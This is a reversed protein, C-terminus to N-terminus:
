PQTNTISGTSLSNTRPLDLVKLQALRELDPQAGLGQLIAAAQSAVAIAKEPQKQHKYLEAFTMLTRAYELQNGAVQLTELSEMLLQAAREWEIYKMALKAALRLARGRESSPALAKTQNSKLSQFAAKLIDEAKALDGIELYAEVQTLYLDILHERSGIRRFIELGHESDEIAQGWNQMALYLRSRHLYGQGELHVHGINKTIELATNIHKLALDTHGQDTYLLGMNNNILAIAEVDGLTENLRLSRQFATLAQPWKGAKWHLM